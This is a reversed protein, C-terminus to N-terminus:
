QFTLYDRNSEVTEYSADDPVQWFCRVMVNGPRASRVQLFQADADYLANGVQAVTVDTEAPRDFWYVHVEDILSDADFDDFEARFGLSNADAVKMWQPLVMMHRFSEKDPSALGLHPVIWPIQAPLTSGAVVNGAPHGPKVMFHVFERDVSYDTDDTSAGLDWVLPNARDYSPPQDELIPLQLLGYDTGNRHGWELGTDGLMQADAQLELEVDGVLITFFSDLQTEEFGEYATVLQGGVNWSLYSRDGPREGAPALRPLTMVRVADVFGCTTRDHTFPQLRITLLQSGAINDILFQYRQINPLDVGFGSAVLPIFDGEPLRETRYAVLLHEDQELPTSADREIEVEIL